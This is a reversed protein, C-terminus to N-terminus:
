FISGRAIRAGAEVNEHMICVACVDKRTSASLAISFIPTMAMSCRQCVGYPKIDTVLVHEYARLALQMAISKYTAIDNSM